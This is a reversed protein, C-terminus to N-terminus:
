VMRCRHMPPLPQDCRPCHEAAGRDVVHPCHIEGHVTVYTPSSVLAAATWFLALAAGSGVVSRVPVRRSVPIPVGTLRRVRFDLLRFGGISATGALSSAIARGLSILASAVDLADVGGQPAAAFDDAVIEADEMLDGAWVHLLPLWLFTKSLFRLVAFRLPDRRLLHCMEHRFVARFESSPLTQQLEQALFIRPHLVGVTFAPNPAVDVMVRVRDQLGFERALRGIPEEPHPLRTRYYSLLRDLKTWVRIRDVAAYLVGVGLVAVPLGHLPAGTARLVLLCQAFLERCRDLLPALTAGWAPALPLATALLLGVIGGRLLIRNRRETSM